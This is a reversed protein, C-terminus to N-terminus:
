VTAKKPPKYKRLWKRLGIILIIFCYFSTNVAESSFNTILSVTLVITFGILLAAASGLNQYYIYKKEAEHGPHILSTNKRFVYYAILFGSVSNLTLNALYLLLPFMFSPRMHTVATAAFPFTVITVLSFLNLVILTNNYDKLYRFMRLHKAWSMGVFFFSILFAGFAVITPHFLVGLNALRMDSPLEPFRIDIALLTIAIAFVADSFLIMRELEFEKRITSENESM